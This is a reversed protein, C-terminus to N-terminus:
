SFNLMIGNVKLYTGSLESVMRVISVNLWNVINGNWPANYRRVEEMLLPFKEKLPLQHWKLRENYSGNEYRSDM